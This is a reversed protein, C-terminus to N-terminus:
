YVNDSFYDVEVKKQEPTREINNERIIREALVYVHRYKGTRWFEDISGLVEPYERLLCRILEIYRSRVDEQSIMYIVMGCM